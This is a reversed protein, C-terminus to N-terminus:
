RRRSVEEKKNRRIGAFLSWRAPEPWEPPLGDMLLFAGLGAVVATLVLGAFGCMARVLDPGYTVAQTMGLLLAAALVLETFLIRCRKRTFNRSCWRDFQRIRCLVSSSIQHSVCNKCGMPPALLPSPQPSWAIVKRPQSAHSRPKEQKLPPAPLQAIPIDVSRSSHLRLESSKAVGLNTKAAAEEIMQLSVKQVRKLDASALADACLLNVTRPIGGSHAYVAEVAERLFISTSRAGAVTLRHRIYDDTEEFNLPSTQCRVAIQQQRQLAIKELRGELEQHGSLVIQLLKAYFTQLNLLSLLVDLLEVTLLQAEDVILIATGDRRRVDLMMELLSELRPQTSRCACHVEFGDLVAELLEDRSLTPNVIVATRLQNRVASDAKMRDLATYLLTTKGTGPAGSLLILGRRKTIGRNLVRLTEHAQKTRHLFRPDPTLDFPNHRLGFFDRCPRGVPSHFQKRLNADLSFTNPKPHSQM